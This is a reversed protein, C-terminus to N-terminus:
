KAGKLFDIARNVVKLRGGPDTILAVNIVDDMKTANGYRRNGNLRWFFTAGGPREIMIGLLRIIGEPTSFDPNSEQTHKILAEKSPLAARCNCIFKEFGGVRLADVSMYQEHWCIGLLEALEKNKDM